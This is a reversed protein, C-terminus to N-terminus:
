NLSTTMRNAELAKLKVTRMGNSSRTCTAILAHICTRAHVSLGHVHIQPRAMHNKMHVHTHTHTYVSYVHIYDDVKVM